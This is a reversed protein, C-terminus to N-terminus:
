SRAYPPREVAVARFSSRALAVRQAAARNFGRRRDGQPRARPEHPFPAPDGVRDEDMSTWKGQHCPRCFALRIGACITSRACINEAPAFLVAADRRMILVTQGNPPMALDSRVVALDAHGEQLARSSEALSEVAVLKLRIGERAEAFDHAAAAMIAQDDSDRPVAIRLVSPREYYYIAAAVAAIVVLSGIITGFILRRM